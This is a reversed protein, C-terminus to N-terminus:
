IWSAGGPFIGFRPINSLTFKTNRATGEQVTAEQMPFQALLDTWSKSRFCHSGFGGAQLHNEQTIVAWPSLQGLARCVGWPGLVHRSAEATGGTPVVEPLLAGAQSPSSPSHARSGGDQCAKSGCGGCSLVAPPYPPCHTMALRRSFGKCLRATSFSAEGVEPQCVLVGGASALGQGLWPNLIGLPVYFGFSHLKLTQNACM